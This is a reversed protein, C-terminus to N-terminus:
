QVQKRKIQLQTWPMVAASYLFSGVGKSVFMQMALEPFYPHDKMLEIAEETRQFVLKKSQNIVKMGHAIGCKRGKAPLTRVLVNIFLMFLMPSLM